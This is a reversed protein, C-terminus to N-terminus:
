QGLQPEPSSGPNRVEAVAAWLDTASMPGVFSARVVGDRDAIVTIPVADVNYKRHLEPAASYEVDVVGVQSCRLVEAKAAVDACTMCTASSFVA